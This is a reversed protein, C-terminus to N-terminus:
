VWAFCTFRKQYHCYVQGYINKKRSANDYFVIKQRAVLLLRLLDNSCFVAVSMISVITDVQLSKAVAM